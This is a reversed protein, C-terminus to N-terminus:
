IIISDDLMEIDPKKLNSPVLKVQSIKEASKKPAVITVSEFLDTVNSAMDVLEKRRSQAAANVDTDLFGSKKLNRSVLMIESITQANKFQEFVM